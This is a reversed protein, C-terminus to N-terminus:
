DRPSPSTYLLCANAKAVDLNESCRYGNELSACAGTGDTNYTGTGCDVAYVAGTAAHANGSALLQGQQGAPVDDCGDEAGETQQYTGDKCAVAFVAGSSAYVNGSALLQGQKGVPVNDCGDEAGETQQYTGDKCAVAFM